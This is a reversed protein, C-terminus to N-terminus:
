SRRGARGRRVPARVGVWRARLEPPMADVGEIRTLRDWEASWNVARDTLTVRDMLGDLSLPHAWSGVTCTLLRQITQTLAVYNDTLAKATDTTARECHEMGSISEVLTGDARVQRPGRNARLGGWYTAWLHRVNHDSLLLRWGSKNAEKRTSPLHGYGLAERLVRLMADGTRESIWEGGMGRWPHETKGGVATTPFLTWRGSTMAERMSGHEGLALVCPYWVERFYRALWAFDVISPSWDWSRPPRNHQKFGADPNAEGFWSAVHKRKGAFHSAVGTISELLGSTSDFCAAVSIERGVRGFARQEIRLPDAIKTALALWESMARTLRETADRRGLSGTPHAAVEADAAPLELLTYYPIGFVVAQPLSLHEALLGKDRENEELPRSKEAANVWARVIEDASQWRVRDELPAQPDPRLLVACLGWVRSVDHYVIPPVGKGPKTRRVVRTLYEGLVVVLPVTDTSARRGNRAAARSINSSVTGDPRSVQLTGLDQMQLTRLDVGPLLGDDRMDCLGVALRYTALRRSHTMGGLQDTSMALYEQVDEAWLPLEQQLKAHPDTAWSKGGRSRKSGLRKGFMPTDPPLTGAAVCQKLAGRLDSLATCITKPKFVDEAIVISGLHDADSPLQRPSLIGNRAFATILVEIHRRKAGAAVSTGAVSEIVPQWDPPVVHTIPRRRRQMISEPAVIAVVKAVRGTRNMDGQRLRSASAERKARLAQVRAFEEGRLLLGRLDETALLARATAEDVRRETMLLERLVRRTDSLVPTARQEGLALRVKTEIDSLTLPSYQTTQALPEVRARPASEIIRGTAPPQPLTTHTLTMTM